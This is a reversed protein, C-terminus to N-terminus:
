YDDYGEWSRGIHEPLAAGILETIDGIGQENMFAGLGDIVELAARPNVLNATGVAVATAGAMIFELADEATMIGGMGIVPVKVAQAVQWVMRVAVPRVAPGSLGGMINGLIPKRARIDIAMGVLTNILSIADAGAEEVSRAIAVIDTVNPSLKAIVPLRTHRKVARIVEAATAPDTGFALGGGRVNPCSINVELASVGEERDLKAAVEAYEEVSEGAINAIVALEFRRLFPLHGDILADVGPNQLGVANLIGSPTEVLRPSPNGQRPHLTTGKVMIGGLRNLDYWGAYERGYGFTGSAVLVPNKLRIGALMVELSAARGGENAAAGNVM